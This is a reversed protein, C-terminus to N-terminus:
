NFSKERTDIIRKETIIKDVRVDHHNIEIDNFLQFEFALVYKPAYTKRLLKDYYGGGYGLRQGVVSVAVCPIIILDLDTMDEDFGLKPELFGEDNVVLDNWGTFHFRRFSKLPKYLKPLFISKGIGDAHNVLARTDIEGPVTSVYALIKKAYVFDDIQILRDIIIKSKEAIEGKSIEKRRDTILKRAEAKPIPQKLNL